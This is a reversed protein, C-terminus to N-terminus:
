RISDRLDKLAQDASQLRILGFRPYELDLVAYITLSIVAAYLLMHLWSRTRREAMAFGALLGSLLAVCVLLAFILTPLHTHLAITRTTTIDIMQNLAPLLTREVAESHDSRYAAIAASWIDKQLKEARVLEQQAAALDPLKQYFGLRADLYNRFLARMALQHDPPLLDLRLYATGIANAEEVVLTRKTDLRSTAGAFSFGLLLGLLAFVAAEIAGVGEHTLERDADEHPTGLRYGADLCVLMGLFLLLSIALAWGAPDM